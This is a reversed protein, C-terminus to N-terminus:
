LESFLDPASTTNMIINIIVIVDDIVLSNIIQQTTHNIYSM